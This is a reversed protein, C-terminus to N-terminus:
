AVSGDAQATALEGIFRRTFTRADDIQAILPALDRSQYIERYAGRLAKNMAAPFIVPAHGQRELEFNVLLRGIRGNGDIFCHSKVVLMFTLAARAEAGAVPPLLDGLCHRITAVVCEPEARPEAANSAVRNPQLKFHGPSYKADDLGRLIQWHCYRLATEPHRALLLALGGARRWRVADAYQTLARDATGARAQALTALCQEVSDGRHLSFHAEIWPWEEPVPWTKAQTATPQRAASQALEEMFPGVVPDIQLLAPPTDGLAAILQEFEAHAFARQLVPDLREWEDLLLGARVAEHRAEPPLPRAQAAALLPRADAQRGMLMLLTALNVQALPHQGDQELAARFAAEAEALRWTSRLIVGLKNYSDANPALEVATGCAELAEDGRGLLYYCRGLNLLVAPLAPALARARELAKCAEAPRDLDLLTGGLNAWGEMRAPQLVTAQRFAREAQATQGRAYLAQGAQMAQLWARHTDNGTDPPQGSARTM